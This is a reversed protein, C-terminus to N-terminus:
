GCSETARPVYDETVCMGEGCVSFKFLKVGFLEVCFTYNLPLHVRTPRMALEFHIPPLEQIRINDLGLDAKINDLGADVKANAKINDLGADVKADAKIKDLGVDVKADAKIKDLGADVKVGTTLANAIDDLGIDAGGWLTFDVNINDLNIDASM